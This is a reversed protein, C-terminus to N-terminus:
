NSINSWETCMGSIAGALMSGLSNIRGTSKDKFLGSELELMKEKVAGYV